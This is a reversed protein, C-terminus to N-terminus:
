WEDPGYSLPLAGAPCGTLIDLNLDKAAGGSEGFSFDLFSFLTTKRGEKAEV